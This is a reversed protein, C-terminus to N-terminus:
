EGELARRAIAVTGELTLTEDAGVVIDALAQRLWLIDAVAAKLATTKEEETGHQATRMYVTVPTSM